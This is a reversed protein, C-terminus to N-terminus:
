NVRTLLPFLSPSALAKFKFLKRISIPCRPGAHHVPAEVCAPPVCLLPQLAVHPIHAAPPKAKFDPLLAMATPDLEEPSKAPALCDLEDLLSGKTPEWCQPETSPSLCFHLQWTSYLRSRPFLPFHWNDISSQFLLYLFVWYTLSSRISVLAIFFIFCLLMCKFQSISKCM